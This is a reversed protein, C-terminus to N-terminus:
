ANPWFFYRWLAAILSRTYFKSAGRRVYWKAGDVLPWKKAAHRLDYVNCGNLDFINFQVRM